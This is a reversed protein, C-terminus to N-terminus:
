LHSIAKLAEFREDIEARTTAQLRETGFRECAFSGMVSGYFMARRVVEPTLEPQSAIYGYFGGAFSDGAGTPDVVENLPLAPSRFTQGASYMTAGYEGHKVVVAKPGLAIVGEAARKGNSEGTLM